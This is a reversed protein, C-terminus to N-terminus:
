YTLIGGFRTLDGGFRALDGGFRLLNRDFLPIITLDLSDEDSKSTAVRTSAELKLHEQNIWSDFM